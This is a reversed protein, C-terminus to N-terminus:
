WMRVRQEPALYLAQASTVDFASYWADINRVEARHYQKILPGVTKAVQKTFEPDWKATEGNKPAKAM